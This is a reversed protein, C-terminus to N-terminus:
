DEVRIRGCLPSPGQCPRSGAGGAIAVEAQARLGPDTIYQRILREALGRDRQGLNAMTALLAQQRAENSQFSSLVADDVIGSRASASLLAKLAEDRIEGRDLGLVWNRAATPDRAAWYGAVRSLAARRQAEDSSSLYTRQVWRAAAEPDRPAWLDVIVDLNNVRISSSQSDLFVAIPAPNAPGLAAYQLANRLVEGYFPQEQYSALWRLADEADTRALQSAVRNIWGTKWQESVSDTARKALEPASRSLNDALAAVAPWQMQDLNRVSWEYAADADAQAWYRIFTSYATQALRDDVASLRDAVLALQNPPGAALAAMVAEVNLQGNLNGSGELSRLVVEAGRLPDTEALVRLVATRAVPSPQALADLWASASDVDQRAFERGVVSVLQDRREQAPSSVAYAFATTPDRVSLIELAALEAIDRVSEPVADIISLLREPGNAAVLRFAQRADVPADNAPLNQIGELFGEPDVSAWEFFVANKYAEAVAYEDIAASFALASPPDRKALQKAVRRLAEKRLTPTDLALAVEIAHLPDKASQRAIADFRFSNREIEPLFEAIADTVDGGTPLLDLLLLSVQRRWYPSELRVLEALVGQDNRSIRARVSQLYSL